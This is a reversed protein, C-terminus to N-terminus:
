EALIIKDAQIQLVNQYQSVKGICTIKQNKALVFEPTKDLLVDIKRTEDQVSLIIFDYDKFSKINEISGQIKVQQNLNKDTIEKIPILDPESITSIFLLILIGIISVAFSIKILSLKM